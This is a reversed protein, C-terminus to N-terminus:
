FMPNMLEKYISSKSKLTLHTLSDPFPNCNTFIQNFKVGLELSTLKKPLNSLPQNFSHGLKLIRLSDPLISILPQNFSEGLYLTKVSSPIVNANLPKYYFFGLKLKKLSPPLCEPLLEQNFQFGLQISVVGNPIVGPKGFPQNYGSGFIIYKVSEPLSGISLKQNFSAGFEIFTVGNPIVKPLLPRNFTSGFKICRITSPLDGEKLEINFKNGFELDMVSSPLVPLPMNFNAQFKIKNVYNPISTEMIESYPHFSKIFFTKLTTPSSLRIIQNPYVNWLELYELNPLDLGDLNGRFSCGFALYRISKPLSGQCLEQNFDKGFIIRTVTQPIADVPLVQNFSDGFAISYLHSGSDILGNAPIFQNFSNGFDIHRVSHPLIIHNNIPQNYSKLTLHTIMSSSITKSSVVIPLHSYILHLSHPLLKLTKNFGSKNNVSIQPQRNPLRVDILKPELFDKFQFTTKSVM